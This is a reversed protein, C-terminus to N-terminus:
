EESRVANETEIGYIGNIALGRNMCSNLFSQLLQVQATGKRHGLRMYTETALCIDTAAGLVEGGRNGGGRRGGSSGGGGGGNNDNLNNTSITGFHANLTVNGNMTVTCPSSSGICTGSNGLTTSWSGDFSSGEDPTASLNVITNEDYVEECDNTPNEESTVFNSDCEIDDGLVVGDGEGNTTITLTYRQPGNGPVNVTASATSSDNDTNDDDENGNATATNDITNGATDADVTVVINLTASADDALSGVTWVNAIYAGSSDDSVYTVGTPLLDTVTVGTANDPGNNTVTITYTIEQNENPTDDNVIKTVSLDSGDDGDGGGDDPIPTTEPACIADIEADNSAFFASGGTASIYRYPQDFTWLATYDDSIWNTPGDNYITGETGITWPGSVNNSGSLTAERAEGLAPEHDISPILYVSSTPTGMDWVVPASLVHAWKHDPSNGATPNGATPGTYSYSTSNLMEGSQPFPSQVIGCTGLDLTPPPVDDYNNVVTFTETTADVAVSQLGSVNTWGDQMIEDTTYTGYPVNNFTVCGNQGTIGAYGENIDVSLSGTNDGYWDENPTTGTGDFIRFNAPGSSSPIFSQAYTHSTNYAGWNSNPDFVSNVQLELIDNQFGTYGDVHTTWSDTTSYEADAPNAGNQNLWTGVAEAIYSIGTILPNSNVGGSVNSPVSLDNQVADGKLMLTWGSLPQQEDDVKCMTVTSTQPEENQPTEKLVNFGVCHYTEGEVTDIFEWNDYNLVDSGCYFEASVDQTTNQGTFPIYNDSPIERFWIKEGAPIEETEGSSFTTWDGSDADSNGDGPNGVGDESWQFDWEVLHCTPHAAVYRDATNSTVEQLTSDGAGWNPLDTESDCVIKKASISSKEPGPENNGDFTNTMTCKKVSGPTLDIRNGSDFYSLGSIAECEWEADATYGAPGGIESLLYKGAKVTETFGGAGQYVISSDNEYTAKLTWETPDAEGVVEKVLTLTATDGTPEANVTIQVTDQASTAEEDDTVVLGFVYVGVELSSIGPSTTNTPDINTPGSIFTWNYNTIYGDSDTSGSGVLTTFDTPLTITEDDGADAVPPINEQTIGGDCDGNAWIEENEPTWNRGSSSQLVNENNLYHFPPIIDDEHQAGHGNLDGTSSVNPSISEYSGNGKSHCIEVSTQATGGFPDHNALAVSPGVTSFLMAFIVLSSAFKSLINKM